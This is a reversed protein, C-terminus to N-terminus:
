RVTSRRVPATVRDDRVRRKTYQSLLERLADIDLPEPSSHPILRLYEAPLYKRAEQVIGKRREKPTQGGWVGYEEDQGEKFCTLRAPCHECVWKAVDYYRNHGLEETPPYWIDIHKGKCLASDRWTM